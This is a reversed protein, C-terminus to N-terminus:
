IYLTVYSVARARPIPGCGSKQEAPSASAYLGNVPVAFTPSPVGTSLRGLLELDAFHTLAGDTRVTHRALADLIFEGGRVLFRAATAEDLLQRRSPLRFEGDRRRRRRRREMRREIGVHRLAMAM